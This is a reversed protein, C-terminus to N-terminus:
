EFWDALEREYRARPLPYQHETTCYWDGALRGVADLRKFDIRGSELVLDDRVHFRVVEGIILTAGYREDGIPIIQRSQCELSAPSELVRPASVVDGPVATLGTAEFESVDPPLDVASMAMRRAIESNVINVVFEGTDQVNRLTDKAGDERTGCSFAVYPPSPTIPLFFSFPAVNTVGSVDRTSVFAIPRPVVVGSLVKYIAQSDMTAPDFQM